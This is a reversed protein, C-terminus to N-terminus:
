PLRVFRWIALCFVQEMQTCQVPAIRGFHTRECSEDFLGVFARQVAGAEGIKAGGSFGKTTILSGCGEGGLELVFDSLISVRILLSDATQDEGLVWWSMLFFSESGAIIRRLMLICQQIRIRTTGGRHNLDDVHSEEGRKPSFPESLAKNLLCCPDCARSTSVAEYEPNIALILGRSLDVLLPSHRRNETFCDPYFPYRSRCFRGSLM